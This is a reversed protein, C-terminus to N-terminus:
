FFMSKLSNSLGVLSLSMSLGCREPGENTSNPLRAPTFMVASRTSASVTRGMSVSPMFNEWSTLSGAFRTGVASEM